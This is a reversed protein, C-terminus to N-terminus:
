CRAGHGQLDRNEMGAIAALNTRGESRELALPGVCKEDAAPGQKGVPAHLESGQRHAVHNGHCASVALNGFSASQHTVSGINAIRKTLGADIGAADEFALFRGVQGHHLRGFELQDDVGLGGPYEAEGHRRRKKGNGVFHRSNM